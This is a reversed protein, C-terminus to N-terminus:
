AEPADAEPSLMPVYRQALQELRGPIEQAGPGQFFTGLAGRVEHWPEERGGMTLRSRKQEEDTFTVTIRDGDLTLSGAIGCVACEVLRGDSITVLDCHCVPCAGEKGKWAPEIATDLMAEAVNRGLIRAREVADPTMVVNGIATTGSIQMQDVVTVHSPFTLLHM